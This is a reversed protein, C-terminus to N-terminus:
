ASHHWLIGNIVKCNKHNISKITVDPQEINLFIIVYVNTEIKMVILQDYYKMTSKMREYGKCIRELNRKGLYLWFVSACALFSSVANKTQGQTKM